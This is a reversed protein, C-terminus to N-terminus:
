SQQFKSSWGQLWNLTFLLAFSFLLLVVAVGIAGPYDFEEL